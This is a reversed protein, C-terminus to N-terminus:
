ANKIGTIKGYGFINRRYTKGEGVVSGGEMDLLFRDETSTLEELSEFGYNEFDSIVPTLGGELILPSYKGNEYFESKITNYNSGQKILYKISPRVEFWLKPYEGGAFNGNAM